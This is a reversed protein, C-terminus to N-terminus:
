VHGDGGNVLGAPIPQVPVDANEYKVDSDTLLFVRKPNARIIKM